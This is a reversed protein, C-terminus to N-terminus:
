EMRKLLLKAADESGLDKVKLVNALTGWNPNRSTILIHGTGAPPIYKSLEAQNQANDFILLWQGSQGLWEQVAKVIINQDAFDKESLNLARALSGYDSALAEARLWWVVKYDGAYRYAYEIAIQTKGAGGHGVLAQALGPGDKSNLANHLNVLFDERGTFHLNRNHPIKWVPPLIGPFILPGPFSPKKTPKTRDKLVGKLLRDKAIDESSGVLDIYIITSLLGEPDCEQVRIPLLRGGGRHMKVFSITWEDRPYPATLYNPSFVAIIREAEKAARDMLDIFNAGPRFDWAQLVTKYGNEELQWAIWEAWVVDSQTYSIFFDKTWHEQQPQQQM